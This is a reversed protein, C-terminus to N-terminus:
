QEQPRPAVENAPTVSNDIILPTGNKLKMQGSTVVLDNEKLGDLIAIQDGRRAGTKVFIQQAQVAPSNGDSGAPDTKAIFVTSGYPNYSITTQPLTLFEEAAGINVAVRVFMGPLLSEDENKLLGEIALNRTSPDVESNIANIHGDRNVDTDSQVQITQGTKLSSLLRQPLKFDVYM